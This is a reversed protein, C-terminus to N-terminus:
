DGYVKYKLNFYGSSDPFSYKHTMDDTKIKFIIYGNQKKFTYKNKIVTYPLNTIVEVPFDAVKGFAYNLLTEEFLMIEFEESDTIIVDDYLKANIFRPDLMVRSIDTEFGNMVCVNNNIDVKDTDLNPVSVLHPNLTCIVIESDALKRFVIYTVCNLRFNDPLYEDRELDFLRQNDKRTLLTSKSLTNAREEYKISDDGNIVFGLSVWENTELYKYIEGLNLTKCNSKNLGMIPLMFPKVMLQDLGNISTHNQEVVFKFAENEFQSLIQGNLTDFKPDNVRHGMEDKNVSPILDRGEFNYSIDSGVAVNMNHLSAEWVPPRASSWVFLWNIM